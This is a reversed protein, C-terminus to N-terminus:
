QKQEQEPAAAEDAKEQMAEGAQQMTEGADEVAAGAAETAQQTMETAKQEIAAGAEKAAETAQQAASGSAAETKEEPKDGCAALGLTAALLLAYTLPKRM